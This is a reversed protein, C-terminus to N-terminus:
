FPRSSLSRGVEAEQSQLTAPILPKAVMLNTWEPFVCTTESNGTSNKKGARGTWEARMEGSLSEKELAKIQNAMTQLVSNQSESNQKLEMNVSYLQQEQAQPFTLPITCMEGTLRYGVTIKGQTQFLICQNSQLGKEQKLTM